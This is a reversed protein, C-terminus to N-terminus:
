QKITIHEVSLIETHPNKSVVDLRRDQVRGTRWLFGLFRKYRVSEALVLSDRSQMTGTLVGDAFIANFDYWADGCHFTKGDIQVTDRLIVTDRAPAAIGIATGTQTSTAAQLERNRAKLSKILAADEARYREFEKLTLELTGVRAASLSDRVKYREVDQLLAETNRAYREREARTRRLARGQVCVTLVLAAFVALIVIEPWYKKM